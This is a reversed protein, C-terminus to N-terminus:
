YGPGGPITPTPILFQGRALKSFKKIKTRSHFYSIIFYNKSSQTFNKFYNNLKRSHNFKLFHNYNHKVLVVYFQFNETGSNYIIKLLKRFMPPTASGIHEIIQHPVMAPRDYWVAWYPPYLLNSRPQLPGGRRGVSYPFFLFIEVFALKIWILKRQKPM